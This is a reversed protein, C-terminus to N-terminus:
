ATQQGHQPWRHPMTENISRILVVIQLLHTLAPCQPKTALVLIDEDMPAEGVVTNVLFELSYSDDVMSRYFVSDQNMLHSCSADTQGSLKTLAWFVASAETRAFVSDIGHMADSIGHQEVNPYEVYFGFPMSDWKVLCDSLGVAKMVLDLEAHLRALVEGQASDVTLSSHTTAAISQVESTPQPTAPETRPVHPATTGVIVQEHSRNSRNASPTTPKTIQPAHNPGQAQTVSGDQSPQRLDSLPANPQAVALASLMRRIDTVSEGVREALAIEVADCSRDASYEGTAVFEAGVRQLTPTVIENWYTEGDIAFKSALRSLSNLRPMYKDMVQQGTLKICAQELSSLRRATFLWRGILARKGSVGKEPLLEELRRESLPGLRAEMQKVLKAVGTAAEFFKMDSRGLNESLHQALLDEDSTYTRYIFHQYLWKEAGTDRYLDQMVQLRTNGGASMMFPQGPGKRTVELMGRPGQATMSARVDEYGENLYLRPQQDCPLVETVKLRIVTGDAIEDSHGDSTPNPVSRVSLLGSSSIESALRDNTATGIVNLSGFRRHGSHQLPSAASIGLDSEEIPPIFDPASM